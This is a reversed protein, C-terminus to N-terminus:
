SYQDTRCMDNVLYYCAEDGTATASSRSPPKRAVLEQPIDKRCADVEHQLRDVFIQIGKLNQFSQMDVNTVSVSRNM